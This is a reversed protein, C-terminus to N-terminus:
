QKEYFGKWIGPNGDMWGNISASKPIEWPKIDGSLNIDLHCELMYIAMKKREIEEDKISNLNKRYLRM